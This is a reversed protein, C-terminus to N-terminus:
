SAVRSRRGHRPALCSGHRAPALVRRARDLAPLAAAVGAVSCATAALVGPGALTGPAASGLTRLLDALVGATAACALVALVTASVAWRDLAGPAPGGGSRAAGLVLLSGAAAAALTLGASVSGLEELRLVSRTATGLPSSAPDAVLALLWATGAVLVLRLLANDTRGVSARVLVARWGAALTRADGLRVLAQARASEPSAGGAEATEVACLLHDRVEDLLDASEPLRPLNGALDAVFSEVPDGGWTTVQAARRGTVQAARRGTVRAARRGTM